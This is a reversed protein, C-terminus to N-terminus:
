NGEQRQEGGDTTQPQYVVPNRPLVAPTFAATLINSSAMGPPQPMQPKPNAVPVPIPTVTPHAVHIPQFAANGGTAAAAAEGSQLVGPPPPPMPAIEPMAPLVVTTPPAPAGGVSVATSCNIITSSPLPPPPGLAFGSSAAPPPRTSESNFFVSSPMVPPPDAAPSSPENSPAPQLSAAAAAAAAAPDHGVKAADEVPEASQPPQPPPPMPPPPEEQRHRFVESMLNPLFPQLKRETVAHLVTGTGAETFFLGATDMVLLMNKLSEPVADALLDSTAAEIFKEMFDLITLWLPRFTVLDTLPALHQLFVKCLLTAARMRTEEMATKEGPNSKVLLHGLMPFLVAVFANEWETSTLM